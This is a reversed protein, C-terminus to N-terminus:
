PTIIGEKMLREKDTLAFRGPTWSELAGSGGIIEGDLEYISAYVKEGSAQREELVYGTIYLEQGRYPELDLGSSIRLSEIREPYYNMVESNESLKEQIHWGYSELYQIHVDLLEDPTEKNCGTLLTVSCCLLIILIKTSV